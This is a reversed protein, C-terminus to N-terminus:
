RAAVGRQRHHRGTDVGKCRAALREAHLRVVFLGLGTGRGPPRTTFFPEGARGLTEASMGHGDDRVGVQVREGTSAIRVRVRGGPPSADLANRVLPLVVAAFDARSGLPTGRPAEVALDVRAAADGLEDAGLVDGVEESSLTVGAERDVRAARGSM